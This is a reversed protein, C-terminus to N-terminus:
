YALAPTLITFFFVKSCGMVLNVSAINTLYKEGRIIM